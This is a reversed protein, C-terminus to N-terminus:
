QRGRKECFFAQGAGLGLQARGRRKRLHQGLRKGVDRHHHARHQRPGATAEAKGVDGADGLRGHLRRFAIAM